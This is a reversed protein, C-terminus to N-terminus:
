VEVEQCLEGYMEVIHAANEMLLHIYDLALAYNPLDLIFVTLGYKKGDPAHYPILVEAHARLEEECIATEHAPKVHIGGWGSWCVMDLWYQKKKELPKSQTMM